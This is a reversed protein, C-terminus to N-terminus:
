LTRLDHRGATDLIGGPDLSECPGLVAGDLVMASQWVHAGDGLRGDVDVIGHSNVVCATGLLPDPGVDAYHHMVAAASIAANPAVTANSGVVPPLRLGAGLLLRAVDLRVWNDVVGLVIPLSRASAYAAAGDTGEVCEAEQLCCDRFGSGLRGVGVVTAGLQRLVWLVACGHHSGDHVVVVDDGPALPELTALDHTTM